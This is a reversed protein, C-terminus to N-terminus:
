DALAKGRRRCEAAAAPDSAVEFARALDLWAEVRRPVAAEAQRLVRLGDERRGERVLAAGLATLAWPHEPAKALVRSAAERAGAADGAELRAFALTVLPDPAEGVAAKELLPLGERPKGQRVLLRGKAGLAGRHNPDKQLADDLITAAEDLRELDILTEALSVRGGVEGGTREVVIRLEQEAAELLGRDRLVHARQQRVNPRDPDLALAGAFALDAEKLHGARYALTALAFHGFPNGPDLAVLSAVLESAARLGRQARLAGQIREYVHVLTRPDPLGPEDLTGSGGSGATYGLSRLREEQEASVPNPVASDGAPAMAKIATQLAQRMRLVRDKEDGARNRTEGQDQSLDFLEPESGEILKWDGDFWARLSSWRCNLRGFLSEAYLGEGPLKRGELAIKLNRGVLGPPADLGLLALATPLLDVLGVRDAIEKGGPVGPGAMILPVHLTSEYILVAHTQEGHEGLSEGHDSAMIVVTDDLRGAERLADLVRGLQADAFAIEGDYPHGQFEERYPSPPAYPAHPDYFHAWLFFPARGKRERLWRLAADAVENAPREAGEGPVHSEHFGEDFDDFGQRFGFSAAVPYAGVFAATRYGARKLLTALTQHRGDLPFVVNDRVGHVPPYLGTLMTAHSPGTLPVASSALRFLAGRHALGDLVPTHAGERGYAGVHDARLTDITVLLLNPRLRRHTWLYAGLIVILLGLGAALIRFAPGRSGEPSGAVSATQALSPASAKDKSKTKRRAM